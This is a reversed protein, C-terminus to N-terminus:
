YRIQEITISQKLQNEINRLKLNNKFLQKNEYGSLM